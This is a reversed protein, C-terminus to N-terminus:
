NSTEASMALEVPTSRSANTCPQLWGALKRHLLERLPPPPAASGDVVRGGAPTPLPSRGRRRM